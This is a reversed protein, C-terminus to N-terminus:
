YPLRLLAERLQRLEFGSASYHRGLMNERTHGILAQVIPQPVDARQLSNTVTHRLSHFVLSENKFGLEPLFTDNFWRGLARGWGNKTCYTFSPFLKTDGRKRLGDVYDLLGIEILKPHIPVRRRSADTKLRKGDDDNLDFYWVGDETAIDRLHIQAIENLRAGTYLAILPGWKQYPLRINGGENAVISRYIREIQDSSFPKRIIAARKTSRITLGAFVNESVYGNKRAWEFMTGYTQLYKNITQANIKETGALSIADQLALGKTLPNKNRNRPYKLLVAKVEQALTVSIDRVDIEPGIIERLLDLHDTKEFKTKGAWQGGREAEDFYMDVLKNLSAVHAVEPRRQPGAVAAQQFDFSTYSENHKLVARAYDRYAIPFLRRLYDYAETGSAIRLDYKRIIRQLVEADADDAQFVPEGTAVAAEGFAVSNQLAQLRLADLPGSQGMREKHQALMELFHTRLVTRLEDYRM